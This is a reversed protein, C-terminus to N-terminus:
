GLPANASAVEAKRPGKLPWSEEEKTHTPPLQGLSSKELSPKVRSQAPSRIQKLLVFKSSTIKSPRSEQDAALPSMPHGTPGEMPLVSGGGTGEWEGWGARPLGGCEQRPSWRLGKGETRPASVGSGTRLLVFLSRWGAQAAAEPALAPGAPLAM